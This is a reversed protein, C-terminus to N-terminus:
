RSSKQRPKSSLMARAEALWKREIRDKEEFQFGDSPFACYTAQAFLPFQVIGLSGFM